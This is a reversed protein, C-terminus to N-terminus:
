NLVWSSFKGPGVGRDTYHRTPEMAFELVGSSATLTPGVRMVLGPYLVSMDWRLSRAALYASAADVFSKPRQDRFLPDDLNEKGSEEEILSLGESIELNEKSFFASLGARASQDICPFASDKEDRYCQFFSDGFKKETDSRYAGIDEQNSSSETTMVVCFSKPVLILITIM